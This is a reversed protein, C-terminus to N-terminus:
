NFIKSKLFLLMENNNNNTAISLANDGYSTYNPNVGLELIKEVVKIYGNAVAKLYVEGLINEKNINKQELNYKNENLLELINVKSYAYYIPYNGFKDIQSFNAGHDLLKKILRPSGKTAASLLIDWSSLNAGKEILLESYSLPKNSIFYGLLTKNESDKININAGEEILLNLASISRVFFIPTKESQNIYNIDVGRNILTKISKLSNNELAALFLNNLELESLNPTETLYKNLLHDDDVLIANSFEFFSIPITKNKKFSTCSMLLILFLSIIGIKKM